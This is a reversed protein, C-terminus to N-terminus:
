RGAGLGIAPRDRPCVGPPCTWLMSHPKYYGVGPNGPWNHRNFDFGFNGTVQDRFAHDYSMKGTKPNINVSYMRHNGDIGSRAVFYDSFVLRTPNGSATLSHNDIAGWHPGGTTRDDVNLASVFRPCDAVQRGKAMRRLMQTPTLDIKGDGTLDVGRMLDCKVHGDQASRILRSINLNYVGKNPQGGSSLNELSPQSGNVIRYLFRNNRSAQMWAGGECPGEQELWQDIDGHRALALSLGDDWVERWKGTSDGHLKTVDPAFFIGGGCMSGAFFGKSKLTTPFAKTRPWTKANEMIGRNLHMSSQSRADRWGIPMHAASVLKPHLPDKTNWIRVTPRYFRGGDFKVPDLVVAKPEGYDSTVMRGIDPRVQIGHPNACTGAPTGEQTNCPEPVEGPKDTETQGVRGAATESAVVLGKKPDPKFAVVEGPSGGYNNTPGGMYTGIFKGGGASDYADPISGNPTATPPLTNELKLNPVDNTGLVFTTTNFLGGALIPDGNEWDYQMHHPEAEIGWPAPLQVFNVVHGYSPNRAGAVSRRRLDIVAFGDLGPVFRDGAESSWQTPEQALLSVDTQLQRYNEDSANDHGMWVVVYEPKAFPSPSLRAARRNLRTRAAGHARHARALASNYRAVAGRWDAIAQNRNEIARPALNNKVGKPLPDRAVQHATWEPDIELKSKKAGQALTAQAVGVLLAVLAVLLAYRRARSTGILRM